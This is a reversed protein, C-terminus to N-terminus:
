NKGFMRRTLASYGAAADFQISPIGMERATAFSARLKRSWRDVDNSLCWVSVNAGRARGLFDMAGPVLSHGRLYPDEAAPTLGVSTWFDDASIVGLSAELYKTEVWGADDSGGSAGVFPVLLEAVDDAAEFIVGMVDLVVCRLAHADV